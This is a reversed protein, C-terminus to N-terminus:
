AFGPSVRDLTLAAAERCCCQRSAYACRSCSSSGLCPAWCSAALLMQPATSITLSAASASAGALASRCTCLRCRTLRSAAPRMATCRCFSVKVVTWVLLQSGMVVIDAVPLVCHDPPAGPHAGLVNGIGPWLGEALCRAQGQACGACACYCEIGQLAAHWFWRSATTGRALESPLRIGRHISVVHSM